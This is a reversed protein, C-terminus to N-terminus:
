YQSIEGDRRVWGWAVIATLIASGCIATPLASPSAGLGPALLFGAGVAVLPLTTGLWASARGAARQFPAMAAAQGCSQHIAHALVFLMYPLVVAAASRIGSLALLGMAGGGAIGVLSAGCVTKRLGFAVLARRCIVTGALYLLSCLSLVAGYEITSLGCQEILLFASGSLFLYHGLYSCATLATYVRFVPHRWIDRWGCPPLRVMAQTDLTERLGIAAVALALVGVLGYAALAGPVGSSGVLMSGALPGALSIASIWSFCRSLVIISQQPSYLDRIIARACVGAAAVGAGQTWRCAILAALDAAFFCGISALVFLLLGTLLAPRRGWRDALIGWIIQTSGFGLILASFAWKRVGGDALAPLLPLTPLILASSLAHLSLLLVLLVRLTATSPAAATM